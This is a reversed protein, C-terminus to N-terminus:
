TTRKRTTRATANQTRRTVAKKLFNELLQKGSEKDVTLRARHTEIPRNMMYLYLMQIATGNRVMKGTFRLLDIGYLALTNYKKCDEEFGDPRLHRGPHRPNNTGGEIEVALGIEPWFFDSRWRHKKEGYAPTHWIFERSPLPLGAEHVQALFMDELEHTKQSKEM